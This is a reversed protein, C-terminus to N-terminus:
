KIVMLRRWISFSDLSLCPSECHTRWFAAQPQYEPDNPDPPYGSRAFFVHAYLSGNNKLAQFILFMLKKMNELLDVVLNCAPLLCM